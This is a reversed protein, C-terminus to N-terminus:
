EIVKPVLFFNEDSAPANAVIAEAKDGDTVADTRKKMEMPTVSTMPEVGSVDVEGLQEVFGLIANLEGTMREAEQDTVAIRALHAVRRVTALDVSM